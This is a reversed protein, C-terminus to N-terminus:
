CAHPKSESVHLLGDKGPVIEVFAGYEKIAKVTGHYTAGEELHGIIGQIRKKAEEAKSLADATITIKGVEREEDEEVWIETDTEKKPLTSYIKM